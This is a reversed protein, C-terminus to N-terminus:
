ARPFCDAYDYYDSIEGSEEMKWWSTKWIWQFTAAIGYLIIKM